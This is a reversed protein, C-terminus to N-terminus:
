HRIHASIARCPPHRRSRRLDMARPVHRPVRDTHAQILLWRSTLRYLRLHSPAVQARLFAPHPHYPLQFRSSPRPNCSTLLLLRIPFPLLTDPPPHRHPSLHQFLRTHTSLKSKTLLQCPLLCHTPTHIQIPFRCKAIPRSLFHNPLQHDPQRHRGAEVDLAQTPAHRQRNPLHVAKRM